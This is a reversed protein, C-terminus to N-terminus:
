ATPAPTRRSMPCPPRRPFLSCRRVRRTLFALAVQRPTAGHAGAIDALVKGGASRPAPFDGSGFPSYAVVAVGNAACWPIVAHEIGREELHYLVQNCAIRGDGAIRRAAELHDEDFNSLGWSLIKGDAKLAEFAAITDELATAAAGTCCTATSGTPRRAAQALGRLRRGHRRALREPADGQLGPLGRRAPRRDGRRRNGRGRRLRLAGGHRYPQPRSRPRPPAGRDRCDAAGARSVLNGPRHGACRHRDTWVTTAAHSRGREGAKVPCAAGHGSCM